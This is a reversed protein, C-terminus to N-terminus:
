AAKDLRLGDAFRSASVAHAGSKVDADRIAAVAKPVAGSLTMMELFVKEPPAGGHTLFFAVRRFSGTKAALYAQVPTAIHGAWMPGGVIVLDYREAAHRPAAIAPRKRRWVDYAAMLYGRFGPKYDVCGIEELDASLSTAIAEAVARTNGSLSYYVVLARM